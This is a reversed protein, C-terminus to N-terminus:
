YKGDEESDYAVLLAISQRTGHGCRMKEKVIGPLAELV